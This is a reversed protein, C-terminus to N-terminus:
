EYETEEDTLCLYSCVAERLQRLPRPVQSRVAKVQGEYQSGTDENYQRGKDARGWAAAESIGEDLCVTSM